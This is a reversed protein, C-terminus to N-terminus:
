KLLSYKLLSEIQEKAFNRDKLRDKLEERYLVPKPLNKAGNTNLYDILQQNDILAEDFNAQECKLYDYTTM